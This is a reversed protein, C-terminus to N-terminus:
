SLLLYPRIADNFSDGVGFAQDSYCLDSARSKVSAHFYCCVRRWHGLYVSGHRATEKELCAKYYLVM